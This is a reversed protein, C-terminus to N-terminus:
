LHPLWVGHTASAPASVTPGSRSWAPAYRSRFTFPTSSRATTVGAAKGLGPQTGSVTDNAGLLAPVEGIAEFTGNAPPQTTFRPADEAGGSTHIRAVSLHPFRDPQCCTRSPPLPLGGTSTALRKPM